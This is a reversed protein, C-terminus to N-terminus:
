QQPRLQQRYWDEAGVFINGSAAIITGRGTAITLQDIVFKSM